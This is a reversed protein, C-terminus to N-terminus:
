RDNRIYGAPPVLAQSNKNRNENKNEIPFLARMPSPNGFRQNSVHMQPNYEGSVWSNGAPFPLKVRRKSGLEYLHDKAGGSWKEDQEPAQKEIIKGSTEQLILTLPSM